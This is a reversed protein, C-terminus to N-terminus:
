YVFMLHCSRSFACAYGHSISGEEMCNVEVELM